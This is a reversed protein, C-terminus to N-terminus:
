IASIKAVTEEGISSTVLVSYLDPTGKEVGITVEKGKFQKELM